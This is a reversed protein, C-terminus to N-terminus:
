AKANSSVTIPKLSDKSRKASSHCEDEARFAKRAIGGYVPYTHEELPEYYRQQTINGESVIPCSNSHHQDDEGARRGRGAPPSQMTRKDSKRAEQQLYIREWGRRYEDTIPKQQEFDM